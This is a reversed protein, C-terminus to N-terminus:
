GQPYPQLTVSWHHDNAEHVEEYM